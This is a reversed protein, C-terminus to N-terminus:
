DVADRAAEILSEELEDEEANTLSVPQGHPDFAKIEEVEVYGYYDLDSPAHYSHSGEFISVQGKVTLELDDGDEDTTERLYNVEVEGRFKQRAARM